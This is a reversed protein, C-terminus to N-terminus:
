GAAMRRGLGWPRLHTNGRAEEQPQTRRWGQLQRREDICASRRVRRGAESLRDLEGTAAITNFLFGIDVGVYWRRSGERLEILFELVVRAPRHVGQGARVQNLYVHWVLQRIQEQLGTRLPDGTGNWLIHPSRTPGLARMAAACHHRWSGLSFADACSSRWEICGPAFPSVEYTYPSCAGEAPVPRSADGVGHHQDIWPEM